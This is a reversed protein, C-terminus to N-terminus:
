ESSEGSLVRQFARLLDGRQEYGSEGLEALCLYVRERCRHLLGSVVRAMAARSTEV